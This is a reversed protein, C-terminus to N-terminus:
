SLVGDDNLCCMLLVLVEGIDPDGVERRSLACEGGRLLEARETDSGSLLVALPYAAVPSLPLLVHSTCM